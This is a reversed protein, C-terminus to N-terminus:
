QFIVRIPQMQDRGPHKWKCTKGRPCVGQQYTEWCASCQSTSVTALTAAFGTGSPIDEFPTAEYGLVYVNNSCAAAELFTTKATSIVSAQMSVSANPLMGVYMNTINGATGLVLETGVVGPTSDLVKRVSALVIDIDGGSGPSNRYLRAKADVKSLKGKRPSSKKAVLQSNQKEGQNKALNASTAAEGVSESALARTGANAPVNAPSPAPPDAIKAELSSITSWLDILTQSMVDLQQQAEEPTFTPQGVTGTNRELAGHLQDDSGSSSRNTTSESMEFERDDTTDAANVIQSRSSCVESAVSAVTSVDAEYAVEDVRQTEFTESTESAEMPRDPVAALRQLELAQSLVEATVDRSPASSLPVEAHRPLALAELNSSSAKSDTHSGRGGETFTPPASSCRRCALSNENAPKHLHLFTNRVVLDM